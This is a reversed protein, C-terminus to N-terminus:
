TACRLPATPPRPPGAPGARDAAVGPRPRSPDHGKAPGAHLARLAGLAVERDSLVIAESGVHQTQEHGRGVVVVVDGARAAGIAASIAQRRDLIVEVSAQDTGYAGIRLEEVIRAAPERGPSDATFLVHDALDVATAGIEQRKFRDRGGRAGVVLHIAADEGALQRATDLVQALADPTHAYDIVVLFDQGLSISEFRGAVGNSSRLAETTTAADAGVALTALYAAAANAANYRGAIPVALETKDDPGVLTLRTGGLGTTIETIRFEAEYHEGYTTVPIEHQAELQSALRRGWEDDICVIARRCRGPTFLLAKSAYYHEMTGHYDLHEHALNTFVAVDFNIGDVRHQDLGHSSVEMAVSSLGHDVMQALLRQLEPAEPTTLVAPSHEEGVWTEITGILGAPLGAAELARRALYATTTKGNTGTVGITVLQQSPWGHISAAVRGITSRVSPVQLQPLDSDVPRDVLLASAGSREAAGVYDHGDRSSGRIACFMWGPRVARSDNTCDTIPLDLVVHGQTGRPPVLTAEEGALSAL